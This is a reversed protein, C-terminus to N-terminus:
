VMLCNFDIYYKQKKAYEIRFNRKGTEHECFGGTSDREDCIFDSSM